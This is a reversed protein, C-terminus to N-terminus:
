IDVLFSPTEYSIDFAFFGNLYNSDYIRRILVLYKNFSYSFNNCLKQHKFEWEDNMTSYKNYIDPPLKEQKWLKTKSLISNHHVECYEYETFHNVVQNAWYVVNNICDNVEAYESPITYYSLKASLKPIKEVLSYHLGCSILNENMLPFNNLELDDEIIKIVSIVDSPLIPLSNGLLLKKTNVDLKNFELWLQGAGIFYTKIGYKVDIEQLAKSLPAPCNKFNDNVVITFVKVKAVDDWHEMIKSFDSNMKRISNEIKLNFDEPGYVQFYHGLSPIWGDNGGDGFRGHPKIPQFEAGYLNQYIQEFFQQFETGKLTFIKLRYSDYLQTLM